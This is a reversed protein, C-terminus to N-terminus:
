MISSVINYSTFRAFLINNITPKEIIMEDSDCLCTYGNVVVCWIMFIIFLVVCIGTIFLFLPGVHNM